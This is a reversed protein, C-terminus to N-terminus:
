HVSDLTTGPNKLMRRRFFDMLSKELPKAETQKQVLLSLLLKNPLMKKMGQSQFAFIEHINTVLVNNSFNGTPEAANDKLTKDTKDLYPFSPKVHLIGHLPNLHLENDVVIGVAFRGPDLLAKTSTYTIKDMLSSKLFVFLLTLHYLQFPQALCLCM